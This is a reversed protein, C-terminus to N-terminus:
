FQKEFAFSAAGIAVAEYALQAKVVELNESAAKLAREKVGAQVKEVLNPLALGLGGGLILRAPNFANVYGICGMVFAEIAQEIIGQAIADGRGAAELVEKTTLQDIAKGYVMPHKAIRYAEKAHKAIAWGSVFAELCGRNGCTCLPGNLQIPFHGLEGASNTAGVLLRGQSIVGGGLGTGIMLCVVDDCGRGAGHKWEGWTAARVDNIVTTKVGTEQEITSQLPVNNWHLNPAFKVLGTKPLIQGAMGVGVAQPRSGMKQELLRIEALIENQVAQHGEHVHTPIQNKELIEGKQNVSAVIIKTGGIDVGASWPKNMLMNRKDQIGQQGM